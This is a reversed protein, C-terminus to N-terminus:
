LKYSLFYKSQEMSKAFSCCIYTTLFYVEKHNYKLIEHLKLVLKIYFERNQINILMLGNRFFIHFREQSIFTISLSGRRKTLFSMSTSWCSHSDLMESSNVNSKKNQLNRKLVLISVAKLIFMWVIQIVIEPFAVFFRSNVFSEASEM